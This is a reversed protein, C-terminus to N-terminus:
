PLPVIEGVVPRLVTSGFLFCTPFLRRVLFQTGFLWPRRIIESGLCVGLRVEAIQNRRVTRGDVLRAHQRLQLSRDVTFVAPKADADLADTATRVHHVYARFYVIGTPVLDSIGVAGIVVHFPAYDGIM